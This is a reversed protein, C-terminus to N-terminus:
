RGVLGDKMAVSVAATQCNVHLKRYLCRVVYDLTHPNVGLREAMQKKVLGEVMCELVARERESLGYDKGRKETEPALKSFMELVRRAVRPNMPAGGELAQAVGELISRMPASKLLYGCAGACIARFIKEDEEFVTLVLIGVEPAVAKVRGIGEIGDMGPLGVDMLVVGPREGAGLAELAELADECRVFSRVGDVEPMARLARETAKRLAPNDEVLWLIAM